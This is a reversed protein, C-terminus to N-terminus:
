NSLEVTKLIEDLANDNILYDTADPLNKEDALSAVLAAEVDEGKAELFNVIAADPISNLENEFSNTKIIEKAAAMTAQPSNAQPENKNLMFFLSFGLMGTLAAAVAYKFAGFRPKMEIVKGQKGINTKAAMKDALSEFYNGPVIYVNHNGIGAVLESVAFTESVVESTSERHIKALINSSLQDFYGEPTSFINAKGFVPQKQQSGKKVAQITTLLVRETLRDFYQDPLSFVNRNGIGAVAPSIQNTEEGVADSKIRNLITSPLSNFYGDPVILVEVPSRRKGGMGSLMLDLGLTDFYGEPTQFVNVKPVSALLPSLEMLEASITQKPTM